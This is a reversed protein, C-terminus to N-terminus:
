AVALGLILRCILLVLIRLGLVKLHNASPVLPPM